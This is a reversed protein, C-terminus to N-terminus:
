LRNALKYVSNFIESSIKVPSAFTNAPKGHQIFMKKVESLSVANKFVETDIFKLAKIDKEAENGALELINQWEYIGYNKFKRYLTKAPGIHVEELYSCAVICSERGTKLKPERSVYWLIRGPAIESVPNVNRYYVNERNWSLEPIAGFISHNAIHHDFLQSAWYPKIPIVYVPIDIDAFKVPALQKEISLKVLDHDQNSELKKLLEEVNLHNKVLTHKALLEASQHMGIVNLKTPGSERQTFGFSDLLALQESDLTTEEIIILACSKENALTMIDKVLQQFLVGSIKQRGVRLLKVTLTTENWAAAFYGICEKSNNKVLRITSHKIDAIVAALRKLLSHKKENVLTNLWKPGSLTDLDIETVQCYEYTAGAFRLSRYDNPKSNHDVFLILEAPRLIRIAYQEYIADSKDLLKRDLTIFYELNGAICEAIQLRDSKDNDSNGPLINSLELTIRDRTTPDFRVEQLTQLFGRTEQARTLNTDRLIENYIEPAHYYEAEDTLWDAFLATAEQNADNPDDALQMIINSDLLAQVKYGSEVTGSFLNANGFDYYWKVLYKEEKSRSRVQKVAKFGYNTWLRTADEYDRRCSLGIGNLIKCHKEKLQDLLRKAVGKGRHQDSICLQTIFVMRKSQTVRFLIFGILNENEIAGYILNKRAHDLYADKPFLGLTKANQKGMIMVDSLLAHRHNIIQIEM